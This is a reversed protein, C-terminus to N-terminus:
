NQSAEEKVEEAERDEIKESGEPPQAQQIWQELLKLIRERELSGKELTQMVADRIKVATKVLQNINANTDKQMTLLSSLMEAHSAQEMSFEAASKQMTMNMGQISARFEILTALVEASYKRYDAAMEGAIRNRENAIQSNSEIYTQFTKVVSAFTENDARKDEIAAEREKFQLDVHRRLYVFVGGSGGLLTVVNAVVIWLLEINPM